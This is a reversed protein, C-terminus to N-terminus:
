AGTVNQERWCFEVSLTPCQSVLHKNDKSKDLIIVFDQISTSSLTLLADSLKM